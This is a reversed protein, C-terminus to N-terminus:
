ASGLAQIDVKGLSTRPIENVVIIQQPACFAPLTQKVHERLETRLSESAYLVGKDHLVVYAVVRQGWQADTVGRVVVQSMAPHTLLASEVAAPWVNEAGTIIMDTRRGFVDLLGDSNLSGLDGTAYWGDDSVSSTGDRYSRMLMACRLYIEDDVIKIEVGDLPQGNYVVGGGTETTGYTTVVNSPLHTPASSGGLLITAFLSADIRSLATAVLSTHTATTSAAHTVAMPEFSAHLTLSAGTHLARTIVSFGGIHSVPICVLWHNTANLQLRAASAHAAATLSTHTHIVGKPIGTSGSTAIVLADGAELDRSNAYHSESGHSDIVQTPAMADLLLKQAAPPLRQDIPLVADGSDWVRQVTEVFLSGAPMDLAILRAM